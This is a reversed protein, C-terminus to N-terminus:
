HNTENLRGFACLLAKVNEAEEILRPEVKRSTTVQGAAADSAAHSEFYELVRISVDLLSRAHKMGPLFMAATAQLTQLPDSPKV